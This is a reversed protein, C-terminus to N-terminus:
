KFLSGKTKTDIHGRMRGSTQVSLRVINTQEDKTIVIEKVCEEQILTACVRNLPPLLNIALLNSRDTGYLVDDLGM